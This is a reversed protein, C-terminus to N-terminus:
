PIVYVYDGITWGRFFMQKYIDSSAKGGDDKRDPGVSYLLRQGKTVPCPTESVPSAVTDGESRVYGFPRGSFPDLPLRDLLGPVLAQLTEPYEGAHDLKWAVLATAQELAKRSTLERDLSQLAAEFSPLLRRTLTSGLFDPDAWPILDTRAARNWPEVGTIPILEAVIRRCIRRARQREWPAAVVRAFHLYWLPSPRADGQGPLLLHALDDGSQDLTREIIFSEVRMAEALNPLPPMAKLDALARRITEPSQRADALWDFALAIAQHHLQIALNMQTLSPTSTALQDAMRFLALIDGWAGSLDGRSPRLCERADLAVLQGLMRIGRIAEWEKSNETMPGPTVLRALPMTSAKRAMEIVSENRKWYDVIQAQNPDWGNEIVEDLAAWSAGNNSSYAGESAVIQRSARRYVEAADQDPPIISTRLLAEDFQPGVDRVGFARYTVFAAFLLGFPVVILLGLRVWPRAGERQLLWDGVWARSIAVLILPVLGLSWAPIV